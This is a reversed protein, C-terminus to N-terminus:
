KYVIEPMFIAIWAQICRLIWSSFYLMFLLDIQSVWIMVTAIMITIPISWILKTCFTAWWICWRWSGCTRGWKLLWILVSWLKSRYLYFIVKRKSNLNETHSWTMKRLMGRHGQDMGYKDRHRSENLHQNTWVDRSENRWWKTAM